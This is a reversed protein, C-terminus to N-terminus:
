EKHDGSFASKGEPTELWLDYWDLLSETLAEEAEKQKERNIIEDEPSNMYEELSMYSSNEESQGERMTEEYAETASQIDARNLDFYWDRTAETTSRERAQIRTGKPVAKLGQILREEEASRIGAMDLGSDGAQSRRCYHQYDFPYYLVAPIEEETSAGDDFIMLSEAVQSLFYRDHSVFLITGKYTKFISEMTEKAPIDMNNTPEDLVLFNPQRQLLTALCLRSKEGGSLNRVPKHLDNGYFLYGALIQRVEKEVLSPFADHFYSFVTADPLDQGLADATLQDFYAMEIHNGLTCKGSVKPIAGALTRLFTTKGSGNSGIIGIKQGRRIRFDIERVVHKGYGIKLHECELVWKAGLHAPLIEQTHIVASEMEPKPIREMRDLMKQRNRAFSAKTPKHKFRNILDEERKIEAQQREYAQEQRLLAQHKAERYATYGGHYSHLKGHEVEWVVDAVQDIFFRDHSVFVVAKSYTRVYHELWEVSEVDLHNTPEDLILVDPKELMLKIFQIKKQEGGSFERIRKEKEELSFGFRTFMKDFDVGGGIQTALSQEPDLDLSQSLSAITIDRAKILGPSNRKDDRDLQLDGSLVQLLTSKGAGNRGVIAIKERGRIHFDFHSLVREGGRYVSGDRIELLM